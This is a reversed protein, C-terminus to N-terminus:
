AMAAGVQDAITVALVRQEVTIGVGAAPQLVFRGVQRGRALVPLEVGGAPLEFGHRTFRHRTTDIRGNPALRPYPAPGPPSEFRCGELSLLSRLEAEAALIVLGPDEGRSLHQAMRHLRRIERSAFSRADRAGAALHGVALGVILLLVTTEVDNASDITLRLYPQTHFFIFSLASVCASVAGAGRGGVAACFVIVVVLVLAVNANQLTGRVGVLVAAVAVPLLGALALGFDRREATM